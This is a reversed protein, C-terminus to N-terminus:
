GLWDLRGPQAALSASVSIIARISRVRTGTIPHGQWAEQSEINETGLAINGPDIPGAYYFHIAVLGMVVGALFRVLSTNTLEGLVAKSM